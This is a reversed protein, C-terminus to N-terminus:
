DEDDPPPRQVVPVVADDLLDGTDADVVFRFAHRERVVDVAYALWYSVYVARPGPSAHITLRVARVDRDEVRGLSVRRLERVRANPHLPDDVVVFLERGVVHTLLRKDDPGLVATTDLLLRPHVRSLNVFYRPAGDDGIYVLADIMSALPEFGEYGRMPIRGRAHVVWTGYTTTKAPGAALDLTPVDDPSMGFFDANKSLFASTAAIAREEDVPETPMQTEPPAIVERKARRVLGRIPEVDDPAGGAGLTIKWEPGNRARFREVLALREPMPIAHVIQM